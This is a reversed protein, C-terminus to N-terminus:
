QMIFLIIFIIISVFLGVTQHMMLFWSSNGIDRSCQRAKTFKVQLDEQKGRVDAYSIEYERYRRIVKWLSHISKCVCNHSTDEDTIKINEKKARKRTLLINSILRLDYLRSVSLVLGFCISYTLSIICAFYIVIKWNINLHIDIILDTYINKRENLLYGIAALSITLYVNNQFSLQSVRKDIWFRLREQYEQIKKDQNQETTM